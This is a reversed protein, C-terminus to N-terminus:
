SKSRCTQTYLALLALSALGYFTYEVDTSEEQQDRDHTSTMDLVSACFGGDGQQLRAINEYLAQVDIFSISEFMYLTWLATFTSLLDPFPIRQNARFGLHPLYMSQLFHLAPDRREPVLSGLIYWTALAAATPNTASPPHVLAAAMGRAIGAAPGTLAFTGMDFDAFGGDSCQQKALWKVTKEKKPPLLGALDYCLLALFTQYISCRRENPRAVYAGSNTQFNSLYFPLSRELLQWTPLIESVGFQVLLSVAQVYSYLDTLAHIPPPMKSLWTTTPAVTRKDWINLVYLVQLGFATYYLDPESSRGRFGGDYHQKQLVFQAVRYKTQQPVYAIGALLTNQLQRVYSCPPGSQGAARAGSKKGTM